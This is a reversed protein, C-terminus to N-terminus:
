KQKRRYLILLVILAIVLLAIGVLILEPPIPSLSSTTPTSTPTTTPTTTTSDSIIFNDHVTNDLQIASVNVLTPTVEIKCYHYESFGIDGTQWQPANTDVGYLPAGGGGTTVYYIDDRLVRYYYHDHGSFVLDVDYQIFLDHFDDRVTEAEEWRDPRDQRVSWAPRHFSVIITDTTDTAELDAQLWELQATSCTYAGSTENFYDETNLIIFHVDEFTFSYYLETEGPEDVVATFDFFTTYNSFTEDYVGWDDTYKEHNGVVGYLPVAADWIASISANFLLWQYWEGGQSVMDGTHIIFDPNQQLYAAVVDDHVSSVADEANVARTDGYAIFVFNTEQAGENRQIAKGSIAQVTLLLFAIVVFGLVKHRQM